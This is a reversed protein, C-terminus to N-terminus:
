AVWLFEGLVGGGGKKEYPYFKVQGMEERKTAGRVGGGGM